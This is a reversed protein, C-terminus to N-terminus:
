EDKGTIRHDAGAATPQQLVGRGRAEHQVTEALSALLSQTTHSSAGTLATFLHQTFLGNPKAGTTAEGSGYAAAVLAANAPLWEAPRKPADTSEPGREELRGQFACDLLLTVRGAHDVAECLAPLALGATAAQAVSAEAPLLVPTGEVTAGRGAFFIVLHDGEVMDNARAQIWREVARKTATADTLTTVHDADIGASQLAAAILRADAAAFPAIADNSYAEVGICLAFSEAGRTATPVPDPKVPEPDPKVPDPGPKVPEPKVPEPGPKVPEPDPKVPEPAPVAAMGETALWDCLALTADAEGHPAILNHVATLRAENIPAAHYLVVDWLSFSREWDNLQLTKDIPIRHTALEKGSAADILAVEWGGAVHYEEDDIWFAVPVGFSWTTFSVALWGTAGNYKVTNPSCRVELRVAGEPAPGDGNSVSAFAGLASVADVIRDSLDTSPDPLTLLYDDASHSATAGAQGSVRVQVPRAITDSVRSRIAEFAARTEV